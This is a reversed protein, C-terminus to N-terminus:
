HPRNLALSYVEAFREAIVSPAFRQSASDRANKSMQAYLRDDTLVRVIAAALTAADEPEVLLGNYGDRIVEPLGDVSSALVPLGMWLAELLVLPLGESRSPIVLLRTARYANLLESRSLEGLFEVSGELGLRKAQAVLSSELDGSGAFALRVKPLRKVVHALADLLVDGGKRLILQGVLLLDWKVDVAGDTVAATAASAFSTPVVNHVLTTRDRVSPVEALLRERLTRSVVTLHDSLETMDRVLHCTVPDSLTTNVDAGHYTTVVSLGANRAARMMTDFGPVAFHFHAVRIGYRRILRRLTQTLVWYRAVYGLRQKPSGKSFSIDRVCIDIIEEGQVGVSRRPVFGDPALRMVVCVGGSALLAHALSETAVAVGGHTGGYWPTIILVPPQLQGSRDDTM